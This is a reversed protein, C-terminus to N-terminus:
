NLNVKKMFKHNKLDQLTICEAHDLDLTSDYDSDITPDRVLEEDHEESGSSEDDEEADSGSSESEQKEEDDDDDDHSVEAEHAKHEAEEDAKAALTEGKAERRSQRVEYISKVRVKGEEEEGEEDGNDDDDDDYSMQVRPKKVVREEGDGEEEVEEEKKELEDVGFYMSDVMSGTTLVPFVFAGGSDVESESIGKVTFWSQEDSLKGVVNSVGSLEALSIVWSDDHYAVYGRKCVIRGNSERILKKGCKGFQVM